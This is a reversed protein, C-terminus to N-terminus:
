SSAELDPISNQKAFSYFCYSLARMMEVTLKVASDIM